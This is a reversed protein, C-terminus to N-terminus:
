GKVMAAEILKAYKGSVWGQGAPTVIKVWGNEATEGAYKYVSNAFAVSIKDGNTSPETRIWCNGSVIQVRNPEVPDNPKNLATQLAEITKAGAVGDQTLAASRQFLEVALETCDGFDGDAGYKGLDYGLKLLGLQLERVDTGSMGNKLERDGLAYTKTEVAYKGRTVNAAAHHNEYLLVDGPLLYSTGKLYKSDTLVEFGAAKFKSKMVRSTITKDLEQLAKIGLLHGVAIWNATVGATCDEECATTIKEPDYGVKGLQTLYTTRQYQDYGIKNNLAAACSLRAFLMRAEPDPYRLVVTWPRSYWSRLQWEKGTQDGATGGHLNGKEDSGSNSIYHTGTSNIYNLYEKM